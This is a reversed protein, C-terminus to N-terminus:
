KLARQWMDIASSPKGQREYLAALKESVALGAADDSPNVIKSGSSLRTLSRGLMEQSQNLHRASVIAQINTNIVSM